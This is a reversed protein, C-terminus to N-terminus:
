KWTNFGEIFRELSLLGIRSNQSALNRDRQLNYGWDALFLSVCDLDSQQAVQQLAKLRDEVFFISLDSSNQYSDRIIRLTEYKPRKSEKGIIRETALDINQQQLLQRVFRGEKTTVIYFEVESNIIQELRKIVGPYFRHLALWEDLDHKIWSDRVGDLQQVVNQKELGESKLLKLSISQWDALIKAQEIGLFLARLLIPMEWGTEIVPRLQYFKPALREDIEDSWIQQYARKTSAFYEILGDCIVGDFDLALINPKM